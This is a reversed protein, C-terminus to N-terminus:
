ELYGVSRLTRLTEEVTEDLAAPDQAALRARRARENEHRLRRLRSELDRRVEPLEAARDVTEGPDAALDYLAAALGGGPDPGLGAILKYRGLVVADRDLRDPSSLYLARPADDGGGGGSLLDRLSAGQTEGIGEIGMLDALTPTLDLHSVPTAVRHGKAVGPGAVILPVRVMEDHLSVGHLFDGHEGFGEGHDSTFVVLTREALGSLELARLLAGVREDVSEVELLYLRELYAVEESTMTPAHDRLKHLGRRPRDHHGLGLYFEPERPLEPAPERELFAPPPRYEAHPDDIWHLLAFPGPPPEGLVELAWLLRLYRGDRPQFGVRPDLDRLVRQRRAEGISRRTFGRLAGARTVVPNEVAAEVRYGAAALLEGLTPEGEPIRYVQDRLGPAAGREEGSLHYQAPSNGTFLGVTSPLTWPAAAYAREFTVGGAALRCLNPTREAAGACDLADARFADSVVFLLNPRPPEGCAALLGAALLLRCALARSRM